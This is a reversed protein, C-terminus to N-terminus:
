VAFRRQPHWEVQRIFTLVQRALGASAEEDRCADRFYRVARLAERHVKLERFIEFTEEALERVERTKGQEM